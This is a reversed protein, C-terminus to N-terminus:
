SVGGAEMEAGNLVMITVGNHVMITVGNHWQTSIKDFDDDHIAFSRVDLVVFM